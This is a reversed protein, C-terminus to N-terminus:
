KNTRPKKAVLLFRHEISVFHGTEQITREIAKLPERCAAVSFGPFEWEIIKAFYVIAGTDLFTLKPFAEKEKLIDFGAAELDEAANAADWNPYPSEFDKILLESLARNNQGGVQQTIFVGGPRLMRFVEDEDFSEHRNIVIDFIEDDIPLVDDQEVPVVTIGLPAINKQLLTINPPYAETVTTHECPHNLTLLFEGGGTGMDLLNMDPTLNKQVLEKYRWPVDEFTWRGDLYSFDWGKFAQAEEKLWETYQKERKEEM